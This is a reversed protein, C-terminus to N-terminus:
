RRTPELEADGSPGSIEEKEEEVGGEEVGLAPAAKATTGTLPV